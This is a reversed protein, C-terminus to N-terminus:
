GHGSRDVLSGLTNTSKASFNQHDCKAVIRMFVIRYPDQFELRLIEAADACLHTGEVERRQHDLFAAIGDIRDAIAQFSEDASDLFSRRDRAQIRGDTVDKQGAPLEVFPRDAM